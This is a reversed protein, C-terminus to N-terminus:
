EHINDEDALPDTSELWVHEGNVLRSVYVADDNETKARGNPMTIASPLAAYNAVSVRITPFKYAM